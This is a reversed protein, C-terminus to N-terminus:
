GRDRSTFSCHVYGSAGGFGDIERSFQTLGGGDIGGGGGASRVVGWIVKEGSAQSDDELPHCAASIALSCSGAIPMGGRLPRMALAALVLFASVGIVLTLFLGFLSFGVQGVDPSSIVNQGPDRRQSLVLFFTLSLLWHLTTSIILLPLGYRWPISLYYTSHQQGRPWSTRLPKHTPTTAYSNYEATALMASMTANCLYYLISLLLQPTNCLLVLSTVSSGTLLITDGISQRGIGLSAGIPDNLLDVGRYYGYVSGALCLLFISSKGKTTADPYDLFSAIADGITLLIEKQRMRAALYICVLKIINCAIVVVCIPINTYLECHADVPKVLCYSPIVVGPGGGSSLSVGNERPTDIRVDLQRAWTANQWISATDLVNRLAPEDPNHILIYNSLIAGDNSYKPGKYLDGYDQWDGSSHNTSPSTTNRFSWSPYQWHEPNVYYEDNLTKMIQSTWMSGTYRYDWAETGTANIRDLWGSREYSYQRDTVVLLLGIETGVPVGSLMACEALSINRLSGSLIDNRIEDADFGTVSHFKEADRKDVLSEDPAFDTPIVALEYKSSTVSSFVASNFRAVLMHIPLSSALLILWLVKRRTDMETFNRLSLVGIDLWRNKAHARDVAARTPACLCQMAYNSAALLATSLVNILFHLGIKWDDILSCSGEYVVAREVNGSNWSGTCALAIAIVTLIINIVLILGAAWTFLLVGKIWEEGHGYRKKAFPLPINNPNGFSRLRELFRKTPVLGRSPTPLRWSSTTNPSQEDGYCGATKTDPVAHLYSLPEDGAQDDVRM